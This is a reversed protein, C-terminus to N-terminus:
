FPLDEDKIFSRGKETELLNIRHVEDSSYMIEYHACWDKIGGNIKIMSPRYTTPINNENFYLELQEKFRKNGIYKNEIWQDINEKIFHYIVQGWTQEFQKAWGSESLSAAGIKRNGKLWIQIASAMLTDFGAWDDANWENPFHVGFHIDIGGCKTFFDTFEIIKVRRKLGGDAIEISFNSSLIFKPMDSSTITVEDKFLKKMLGTGSSLEKLFSFKFDKPVDSICMIKEGNWSQMFKEDYKVQTGPKGVYSTIQSFLASFVNKGAGGGDKPNECQETLVIIYSATEDKYEHALYGICKLLYDDYFIALKLFDLYRGGECNTYERNHIASRWILKDSMALLDIGSATIKLIGNTYVKYAADKTDTLIAGDALIPLRSITFKGHKEIFAEYANCIDRYLDADEEKIYYKLTDFFYRETVIGIYTGDTQTLTGGTLRFGLGEAVRYLLERDIVVGEMGDIWFIGYPHLEDLTATLQTKIEIAEQSINAPLLKGNTAARKALHAEVKPKIKGYGKTVLHAYLQKKNDNFKLTSLLNSPSYGHSEELETSATFCYFFRRQLNFSISIGKTKGPRTYWLFHNNGKLFQWGLDQMLVSPDTRNNFDEFPNTDYYSEDQKTPKYTNEIKILESYSKCLTIISERESATLTPIPLDKVVSYGLAPPALVYGSEGRTEIFNVIRPKPKEKLEENTKERGALKQNGPIPNECRYLIHYGGSPSKHIRLKAFLEPYLLNLDTFLIADIGPKYKVDIDIIELNGSVKGGILAASTTNYKVDMLDFLLERAIITQQYSKWNGYPSKAVGNADDKDRVPIVSIGWEIYKEIEHWVPLLEASM